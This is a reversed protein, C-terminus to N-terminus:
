RLVDDVVLNDIRLLQCNGLDLFQSYSRINM